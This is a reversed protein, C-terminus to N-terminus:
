VGVNLHSTLKVQIINLGNLKDTGQDYSYSRYARLEAYQNEGLYINVADRGTADKFLALAEEIQDILIYAM